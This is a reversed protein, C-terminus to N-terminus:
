ASSVAAAKARHGGPHRLHTLQKSNQLYMQETREDSQNSRVNIDVLSTEYYKLRVMWKVDSSYIKYFLSSCILQLQHFKWKQTYQGKLSPQPSGLFNPKLWCNLQLKDVFQKIKAYQSLAGDGRHTQTSIGAIFVGRPAENHAIMAGKEWRVESMEFDRWSAEERRIKPHAIWSCSPLHKIWYTLSLLPSTHNHYRDAMCRCELWRAVRYRAACRDARYGSGGSCNTELCLRLGPTLLGELIPPPLSSRPPFM